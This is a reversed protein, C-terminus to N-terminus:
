PALKGGHGFEIGGQGVPREGLAAIAGSRGIIPLAGRAAGQQSATVAVPAAAPGASHQQDDAVAAAMAHMMAIARLRDFPLPGRVSGFAYSFRRADLQVAALVSRLLNKLGAPM